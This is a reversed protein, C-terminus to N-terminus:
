GPDFTLVDFDGAVYFHVFPFRFNPDIRGLLELNLSETSGMCRGQSPEDSIAPDSEEAIRFAIVDLQKFAIAVLHLPESLPAVWLRLAFVASSENGDRPYGNAPRTSFEGDASLCCRRV